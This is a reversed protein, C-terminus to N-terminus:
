VPLKGALATVLPHSPLTKGDLSTVARIGVLSNTLFVAEAEKLADQGVVVEEVPLRAM